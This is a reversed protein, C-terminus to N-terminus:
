DLRFCRCVPLGGEVALAARFQGALPPELAVDHLSWRQAEAPRFETSLLRAPQSPDTSVCFGDLPLSLGAGFAKLLAEKRTWIACFAEAYLPPDYAALAAAEAAAFFRKAVAALDDADPIRELDVGLCRGRSVALLAWDASNSLNFSLKATAQPGAIEPKGAPGYSFSLSRPEADLYSALIRRLTARGAIFRTRDREFRFREARLAEDPSLMEADAATAAGSGALPFLWLHLAGDLRDPCAEGGLDNRGVTQWLRQLAAESSTTSLETPHSSM